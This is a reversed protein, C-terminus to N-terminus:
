SHFHDYSSISMVRLDPLIRTTGGITFSKGIIDLSATIVPIFVQVQADLATLTLVGPGPQEPVAVDFSQLSMTALSINQTDVTFMPSLTLAALAVPILTPIGVFPSSLTLNATDAAYFTDNTALSTLTLSALAPTVIDNVKPLPSSFTLSASGLIDLLSAPPSTFTLVATAPQLFSAVTAPPSDLELQAVDPIITLDFVVASAEYFVDLTIFDIYLYLPVAPLLPTSSRLRLQFSDSNVQAPTLSTTWNDTSSGYPGLAISSPKSSEFTVSQDGKNVGIPLSNFMLQVTEFAVEGPGLARVNITAIIGKIVAGNPVNFRFTGIDLYGNDNPTAHLRNVSNSGDAALLAEPALWAGPAGGDVTASQPYQLANAQTM